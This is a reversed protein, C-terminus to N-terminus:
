QMSVWKVIWQKSVFIRSEAINGNKDYKQVQKVSPEMYGDNFSFVVDCLLQHKLTIENWLFTKACSKMEWWSM